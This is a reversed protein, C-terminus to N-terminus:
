PLVVRFGLNPGGFGGPPASARFASGPTDLCIISGGRIVRYVGSGAGVPDAQAVSPYTELWDWCWEWVNGHMDYLGWTNPLKLGVQRTKSGSNERYWAYNVHEGENNGFHWNTTTGARCAYEWQAETPLRYGNNSWNATVTANIIPYGIPPTRGTITYVPTLGERESLKNCFEIADFWTVMEVPRKGQIEEAAPERDSGGHFHSPNIRMIDQYLEQTVQFKSMRFGSLTVSRTPSANDIGAQGMTFTGASIWIMEIDSLSIDTIIGDNNIMGNNTLTIGNPITLSQVDSIELTKGAPITVDQQLTVNGYMTGDNDIFIIAPGLNAGTPLDPQISSAFVVANGTIASLSGGSLSSGSGSGIGAGLNGGIATVTGGTISINGGVGNWGGGIGSAGDAIITGGNISINGGSSNWRGGIGAARDGGTASLAGTSEETIVLTSGSPAELGARDNGSILFNNGVLTLYVVAGTMDFACTNNSASRNINIGSLTINVEVGSSIVIRDITTVTAGERMEIIYTGNGNIILVEGTYSVMSPNDSTISFSGHMETVFDSPNNDGPCASLLLGIVATLVIIWLLKPQNKM